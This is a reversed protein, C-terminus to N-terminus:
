IIAVDIMGLSRADERFYSHPIDPPSGSPVDSSADTVTRQYAIFGLLWAPLFEM